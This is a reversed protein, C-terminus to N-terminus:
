RNWEYNLILFDIRKNLHEKYSVNDAFPSMEGFGISQLKQTSIGNNKIFFEVLKEARIISLELNSIEDDENQTLVNGEVVCPKGITKIIKGLKFLLDKANEKIEIEHEEFLESTPISIIIGMPVLTYIINKNTPMNSKFYQSITESNTKSESVYGNIKNAIASECFLISICIFYIIDLIKNRM